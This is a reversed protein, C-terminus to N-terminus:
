GTDPPKSSSCVISGWHNDLHNKPNMVVTRFLILSRTRTYLWSYNEIKQHFFWTAMFVVLNNNNEKMFGNTKLPKKKTKQSFLQSQHNKSKSKFFIPGITRLNWFFKFVHVLPKKQLWIAVCCKFEGHLFIPFIKM